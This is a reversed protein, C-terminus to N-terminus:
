LIRAGSRAVTDRSFVCFPHTIASSFAVQLLLTLGSVQRKTSSHSCVAYSPCAPPWTWEILHPYGQNTRQIGEVYGLDALAHGYVPADSFSGAGSYPDYDAADQSFVAVRWVQLLFRGLRHEHLRFQQARVPRLWPQSDRNACVLFCGEM